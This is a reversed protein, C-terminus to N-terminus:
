FFFNLFKVTTFPAAAAEEREKVAETTTPPRSGGGQRQGAATAAEESPTVVRLSSQRGRCLLDDETPDRKLTLLDGCLETM